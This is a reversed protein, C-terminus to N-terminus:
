PVSVARYFLFPEATTAPDLLMQGADPMPVTAVGEWQV